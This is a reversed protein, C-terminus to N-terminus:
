SLAKTWRWRERKPDISRYIAPNAKKVNRKSFRYRELNVM